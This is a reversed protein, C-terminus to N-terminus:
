LIKAIDCIKHLTNYIFYSGQLYEVIKSSCELLKSMMKDDSKKLKGEEELGFLEDLKDDM